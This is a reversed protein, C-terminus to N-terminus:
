AGVLVKRSFAAGLSADVTWECGEFRAIVGDSDVFTITAALYQPRSEIVELAVRVGGLPFVSRYQRYRAGFSPLSVAGLRERSWLIGLQLGVDLVLPDGLWGSRLPADMWESPPPASRADAVIGRESIGLVNEIAQLHAGHFLVDGYAGAVGPEYSQERLGALDEVTPAAPLEEILLAKGRAHTIDRGDHTSRLETEVVFTAGDRKARSTHVRLTKPGGDLIVGKLVRFDDLGHLMLGPNDHLAGHGLWELMVAMPLVPKGDIVHSRLFPHTELDLVREFAVPMDGNRSVAPQSRDKSPESPAADPFSGGVVVEVASGGTACLENVLHEAGVRLPILDIGLRAFEQKLGATVMGGDWPGWNLSVVRCGPRRQAEFQAVKNLVENAMAYDVQGIRGFRGSVSSFLVLCKLEDAGTAELLARLGHVKTDFVADFQEPTKDEILHDALVGAAHIIGRVPGHQDRVADVVDTIAAADRVDVSRYIVTAGTERLRELNRTVERNAMRRRFEAELEKPKPRTGNFANALLVRKITAEDECGALWDPEPEPELSRGLLVLVLRKRQALALVTAATVGRAGGSVIVVDGDDLPLDGVELAADTLELGIRREESFGVEIPGDAALEDAITDAVAEVDRWERAVDLARCTVGALEHAATKALGSYGGQLAEFSGGRLGFAGDLRAVTALLAGGAEAASKLNSALLKVRKFADKLDAETAANWQACDGEGAAGLMILGGIQRDETGRWGARPGIVRATCGLKELRKVLTPALPTGDDTVWVEHGKAIRLPRQRVPSLEVETLVRRELKAVQREDVIRESTQESSAPASTPDSGSAVEQGAGKAYDIINRLTRLSGMYQSNVEAMQPVKKQVAGLIELRKISDIGLDAEMDMDLDLMETPYGTLESVAELVISEFDGNGSASQGNGNGGATIPGSVVTPASRAPAAVPLPAVSPKSDGNTGAPASAMEVAPPAVLPPPTPARSAPAPSAPPQEMIPMRISGPSAVGLAGAVLQQQQAIVMQFTKQAQEQTYLFREHATATQQQLAQMARLGEQVVQFAQALQGTNAPTTAPAGAAGGAEVVNNMSTNGVEPQRITDTPKNIEPSRIVPKRYNAGCLPVPMKPEIVEPAPREWAQIEVAYGLATLLALCRALDLVGNGRGLGADVALANLTKGHLISKVLGTLVNKPGVEVFTRAGAEYLHKIQEVFHVPHTLQKALLDKAQDPDDPYLAATVNSLVPLRGLEFVVEDLAARFKEQAPAMFKSHFAASVQLMKTRWGRQECAQGVREVAKRVGSVIGQTPTNRNALVVEDGPEEKLLKNIEELPASVAMMAGDHGKVQGM